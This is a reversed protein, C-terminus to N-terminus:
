VWDICIVGDGDDDILHDDEDEDYEYEPTAGFNESQLNIITKDYIPYDGANGIIEYNNKIINHFRELITRKSDGIKLEVELM